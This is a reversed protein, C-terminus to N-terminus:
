NEDINTYQSSAFKALEQYQHTSNLLQIVALGLQSLAAESNDERLLDISTKVTNLFRNFDTSSIEIKQSTLNQVNQQSLITESQNIIPPNQQSFTVTTKNTTQNELNDNQGFVTIDNNLICLISFLPILILYILYSMKKNTRKV